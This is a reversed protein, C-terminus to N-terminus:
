NTKVNKRAIALIILAFALLRLIYTWGVDLDYSSSASVAFQNAAMLWFAWAFMMFLSERTHRWFKFFFMGLVLYGVMLAGSLFTYPDSM